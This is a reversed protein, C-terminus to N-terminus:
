RRLADQRSRASARARGATSRCCCAPSSSRRTRLSSSRPTPSTGPPAWRAPRAAGARRARPHAGGEAVGRAAVIGEIAMPTNMLGPCSRTSASATSRRQGLALSHTLANVGAKSTKYALMASPASRRRDVLHQHDVGCGQERMVPLVHKCTLFMSKLNVGYSAIGSRRAFTRRARRRRRRHRRQQAARRHPRIARPVDDTSRAATAGRAHRRRQVVRCEGGEARIMRTRDGRASTSTATSSSCARARARSCCRRPAATASRTARADARRRGRDRGQGGTSREHESARARRRRAARRLQQAGDVGAQVPRGHVRPGDAAATTTARPSRRGPPTASSRTTTCSTPPACCRRARARDWGAADPGTSDARDGRRHAGRAEGIRVHQGWEYESRCLWGIRLIVSSASARRCRRSSWCTTASCSGASSCSRTTPSRAFINPVKGLGSRQARAGGGRPDGCEM